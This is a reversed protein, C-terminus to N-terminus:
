DLDFKISSSFVPILSPYNRLHITVSAKLTMIERQAPPWVRTSTCCLPTGVTSGLQLPLRHGRRGPSAGAQRQAEGGRQPHMKSHDSSPSCFYGCLKKMGRTLSTAYLTHLTAEKKRYPHTIQSHAHAQCRAPEEKSSADMRKARHQRQPFQKWFWRKAASRSQQHGSFGVWPKNM